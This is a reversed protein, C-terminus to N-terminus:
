LSVKWVTRSEHQTVTQVYIDFILLPYRVKLWNNIYILWEAGDSQHLIHTNVLCCTSLFNLFILKILSWFDFLLSCSFLQSVLSTQRMGCNTGGNDTGSSTNRSVCTTEWVVQPAKTQGALGDMTGYNTGRAMTPGVYWVMWAQDLGGCTQFAMIKTGKQLLKGGISTNCTEMALYYADFTYYFYM